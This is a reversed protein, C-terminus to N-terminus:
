GGATTELDVHVTCSPVKLLRGLAARRTLASFDRPKLANMTSVVTFLPRLSNRTRTPASFSRAAACFNSPRRLATPSFPASITERHIEHPPRCTQLPGRTCHGAGNRDEAPM